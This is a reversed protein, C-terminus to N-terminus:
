EMKKMYASIGNIEYICLYVNEFEEIHIVNGDKDKTIVEYNIPKRTKRDVDIVFSQEIDSLKSPENEYMIEYETKLNNLNGGLAELRVVNKDEDIELIIQCKEEDISYTRLDKESGIIPDIVMTKQISKSRYIM